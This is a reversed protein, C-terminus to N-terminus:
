MMTYLLDLRNKMVKAAQGWTFKEVMTQRAAVGIARAEDRNEFAWRMKAGVEEFNVSAWQHGIYQTQAGAEVEGITEMKFDKCLLSNQDTMFDTHGSWNVAITPLGTAMAETYTLGWGEGRSPLVYCDLAAYFSPLVDAPLIDLLLVVPPTKTLGMMKKTEAIYALIFDRSRDIPYQYYTKLVLKVPDDAKFTSYYAKLLALPNKRENWDFNAGFVYDGEYIPGYEGIESCRALYPMPKASPSFKVVNVGHPIVTIPRRIGVEEFVKKSWETFTFLEDMARMPIQWAQPISTTEFTTMGIHYRCGGPQLAWQDPTLHQIAIHPLRRDFNNRALRDLMPWISRLDPAEGTWYSKTALKTKIDAYKAIGSLYGRTAEGYGSPDTAAGIYILRKSM